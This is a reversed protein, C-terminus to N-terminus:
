SSSARRRHRARKPAKVRIADAVLTDIVDREDKSRKRWSKKIRLRGHLVTIEANLARAMKRPDTFSGLWETDSRMRVLARLAQELSMDTGDTLLMIQAIARAKLYYRAASASKREVARKVDETLAAVMNAGDDNDFPGYGWTGM